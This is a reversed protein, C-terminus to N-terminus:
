HGHHPPTQQAALFVSIQSELSTLLVVADTAPPTVPPDVVPPTVPPTVQVFPGPKGTLAMYDANLTATDLGDPSTGAARMWDLDIPVWFEDFYRQLFAVSMRQRAGWTVCEFYDAGYGGIPVCHGGAIRARNVVSWPQGKDFQDLASQPCNFGTYVGGFVAICNRILDLDTASIQAYAAIKNGGIGSKQWYALGDSLMAGNDNAGTTPNYGSIASYMTITDADSVGQNLAQGYWNIAQAHHGAAAAVCDGLRDNALFGWPGPVASLWDRSAPPTLTVGPLARLRVRPKRPDDPQRGLLYQAV